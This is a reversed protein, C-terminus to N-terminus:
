RARREAAEAAAMIAIRNRVAAERDLRDQVAERVWAAMSVGLGSASRGIDQLMSPRMAVRLAANMVTITGAM